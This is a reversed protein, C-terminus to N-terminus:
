FHFSTIIEFSNCGHYKAFYIMVMNAWITLELEGREKCLGENIDVLLTLEAFASCVIHVITEFSYWQWFRAIASTLAIIAQFTMIKDTFIFQSHSKM